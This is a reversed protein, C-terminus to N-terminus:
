TVTVNVTKTIGRGQLPLIDDSDSDGKTGYDDIGGRGSTTVQVDYNKSKQSQGPLSHMGIGEEQMYYKHRGGMGNGSSNAGTIRTRMNKTSDLLNKFLPRLAPLSAALIGVNHEISNWTFYSYNRYVDPTNFVQSQFVTKVISAACASFSEINTFSELFESPSLSSLHGYLIGLSLIVTLTAKTRKNVQLGWVMPIPLIAFLVDTLINVCSNFMGIATFTDRSFCRATLALSLDWSASVPTCSFTITGASSITFAVLFAIMCWLLIKYAKSPVLRLLFFAVSLKVLSIGVTVIISHFFQWHLLKVLESDSIAASFMGVGHHTEGVVCVLVGVSCVTAAAILWDDTGMSKLMFARVYLRALVVLLTFGTLFGDIALISPANTSTDVPTGDEPETSHLIEISKLLSSM